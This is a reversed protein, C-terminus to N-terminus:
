SVLTNKRGTGVIVMTTLDFFCLQLSLTILLIAIYNHPRLSVLAPLNIFVLIDLEISIQHHFGDIIHLVILLKTVLQQLVILLVM